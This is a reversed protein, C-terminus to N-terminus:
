VHDLAQTVLMRLETPSAPKALFQSNGLATTRKRYASANMGSVIIVPIEIGLNRAMGLASLGDVWGMDIDSILLDFTPGAALADLLEDSSAVCVIERDTQAVIIRVLDRSAEDDDAVLIRKNRPSASKM